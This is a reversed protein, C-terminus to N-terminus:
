DGSIPLLHPYIALVFGLAALLGGTVRAVRPGWRTLKELAILATLGAMWRLDMLGVSFLVAMLGWCCGFCYLGHEMGMRLAGLSGPHWRTLVFELPSRCRRLCADKLPTLQYLGAAVLIGGGIRPIQSAVSPLAVQLAGFAVYALFVLLGSVTWLLLYGGLFCTLPAGEPTPLNRSVARHFLVMPWISPFMMAVIMVFWVALFLTLQLPLPTEVMAMGSGLGMPLGLSILSETHRVQYLSLAWALAALALIAGITSRRLQASIPDIGRLPYTDV